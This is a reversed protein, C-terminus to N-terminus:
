DRMVAEIDAVAKPAAATLVECPQGGARVAIDDEIRIGISHFAAPVDDAGRVYLGPEITLVMGDRLIRAPRKRS